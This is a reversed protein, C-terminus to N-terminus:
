AIHNEQPDDICKVGAHVTRGLFDVFDYMFKGSQGAAQLEEMSSVDDLVAAYNTNMGRIIDELEEQYHYKACKWGWKYGCNYFYLAVAGGVAITVYTHKADEPLGDWKVKLNQAKRKMKDFM